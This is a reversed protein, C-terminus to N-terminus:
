SSLGDPGSKLAIISSACAADNSGLIPSGIEPVPVEKITISVSDQCGKDTTFVIVVDGLMVGLLVGSSSITAKTEDRSIWPDVLAPTTLSQLTISSGKCVESLGTIVPLTDIIVKFIASDAPCGPSAQFGYVVTFTDTASQSPNIEGTLSNIDLGVRSSYTGGNSGNMTVFASTESACFNTSTYSISTVTPCDWSIYIQGSGGDGGLADFGGGGGAGIGLGNQGFNGSDEGGNGGNFGYTPATAGLSDVANNGSSLSDASSGGGGAALLSVAASGSGGNFKSGSGTAIGGTGSNTGSLGGGATLTDLLGGGFASYGGDTDDSPTTTGGTGKEGVIYPIVDGPGVAFTSHYAVSGGGAGLSDYSGGGGAGKLSVKLSYVGAPVTFTGSGSTYTQSQAFTNALVGFFFIGSFYIFKLSLNLKITSPPRNNNM